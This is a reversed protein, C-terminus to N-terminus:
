SRIQPSVSVQILPHTLLDFLGEVCVYVLAVLLLLQLPYLHLQLKSLLM